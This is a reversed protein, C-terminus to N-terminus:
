NTSIYFRGVIIENFTSSNFILCKQSDFMLTLGKDVIMGISLLNKNIRLKVFFVNTLWKITREITSITINGKETVQRNISKMQSSNIIKKMNHVFSGERTM